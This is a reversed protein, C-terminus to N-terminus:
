DGDGEDRLQELNERDAGRIEDLDEALRERGELEREAREEEWEALQRDMDSTSEAGRTKAPDVGTERMADDFMERYPSDPYKTPDSGQKMKEDEDKM